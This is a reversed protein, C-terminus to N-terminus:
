DLGALLSDVSAEITQQLDVARSSLVVFDSRLEELTVKFNEDSVNDGPAV